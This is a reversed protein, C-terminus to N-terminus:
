SHGSRVFDAILPVVEDSADELVFHGTDALYRLRAAPLHVRWQALFDEDFVFDKGGWVILAPTAKFQELNGAIHHVLAFSPDALHLPIDQVFRLTAIRDAWSDYPARYAASIEPPMPHRACGARAAGWAFANFGRVLLAGLPTRALKLQWPLRKGEPLPFAATNLIVLRAVQEPHRIAWGFGIMGGWDHVVLTLPERLDLSAVLAELDDIRQALTYTYAQDDPKDSLGMGVHDPVICRHTGRLALVLNRYHFSWSPNGHVMLVPPGNGEDLYHMRLGAGRDFHHPPFPFLSANFPGVM